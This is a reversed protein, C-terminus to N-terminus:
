TEIMSIMMQVVPNGAVDNERRGHDFFVKPRFNARRQKATERFAESANAM